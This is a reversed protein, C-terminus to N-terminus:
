SVAEATARTRAVHDEYWELVQEVSITWGAKPLLSVVDFKFTMYPLRAIGADCDFCAVVVDTDGAAQREKAGRLHEHDRPKVFDSEAEDWVLVGGGDCITCLAKDALADVLISLAADSPGSGSYGWELGTPSHRGHHRLPREHLVAGDDNMERVVIEGTHGHRRGVYVKRTTM